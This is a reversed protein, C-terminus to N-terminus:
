LYKSQIKYNDFNRACLFTINDLFKLETTCEFFSFIGSPPDLCTHSSINSISISHIPHFHTVPIMQVLFTDFNRACLFTINDLFKLGTTCEFFSFIGSPPDLCTHSSINSISISHIPHFHTVPTMQVLFTPRPRCNYYIKIETFPM